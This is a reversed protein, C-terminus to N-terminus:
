RARAPRRILWRLLRRSVPGIVPMQLVRHSAQALTGAERERQRDKRALDHLFASAARSEALWDSKVGSRAHEAIVSEYMALLSEHLVDSPATERLRDSVQRADAPDYRALEAEITEARLPARLTRVGFNLRRLRDVDTSRVMGGIGASDCLIVALGCAMAEMACKAKAFAIDYDGLIAEPHLAATNAFAGVVDVDISARRCADRIVPLFTLEHAANGFVVARRPKAPLPARQRFTDMDVANLIVSVKEPPIAERSVLRDACTDDVAVYRVIRPFHPTIATLSGWGHCVFLAPTEPFHLLATMTELPSDGHIVDIPAAVSRLDDTVPITRRVLERAVDGLETGYVIPSHGRALLWSALDREYIQVGGNESLSHGAILVRM